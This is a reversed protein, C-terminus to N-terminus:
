EGESVQESVCQQHERNEEWEGRAQMAQEHQLRELEADPELRWDPCDPPVQALTDM